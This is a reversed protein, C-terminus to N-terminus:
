SYYNTPSNILKIEAIGENFHTLISISSGQENPFLKDLCVEATGSYNLHLDKVRFQLTFKQLPSVKYRRYSTISLLSPTFKLLHTKSNLIVAHEEQFEQGLIMDAPALKPVIYFNGFLRNGQVCIPFSIKHEVELIQGNGVTLKLPSFIRILPLKSLVPNDHVIDSRILTGTSGTDWLASIKRGCPFSVICLNQHTIRITGSKNNSKEGEDNILSDNKQNQCELNMFASCVNVAKTGDVVESLSNGLESSHFNANDIPHHSAESPFHIESRIATKEITDQVTEGNTLQSGSL